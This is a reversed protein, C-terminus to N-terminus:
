DPSGSISWSRMKLYRQRQSGRRAVLSAEMSVDLGLEARRELYKEFARSPPVEGLQM